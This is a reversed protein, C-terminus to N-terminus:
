KTFSLAILNEKSKFFSNNTMALKEFVVDVQSDPLIKITTIFHNDAGDFVQCEGGSKIHTVKNSDAKTLTYYVGDEEIVNFVVERDLYTMFIHRSHEFREKGTPSFKAFSTNLNSDLNFIEGPSFYVYAQMVNLTFFKAGHSIMKNIMRNDKGIEKLIDADKDLTVCTFQGSLKPTFKMGRGEGILIGSFNLGDEIKDFLISMPTLVIVQKGSHYFYEVVDLFPCDIDSNVSVFMRHQHVCFNVVKEKAGTASVRNKILEKGKGDM